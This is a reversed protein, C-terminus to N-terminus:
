HEDKMFGARRHRLAPLRERITRVQNINIQVQIFGAGTSLCALTEGWPDIAMTHGWTRRGNQHLGGQAPALVYCQNEVARAKLLLHWHAQGTIYTFASPVVLLDIAPMARFMEPFRLDYCIGLGITGWETTFVPSSISGPVLTTAEDYKEQGQQFSFLHM